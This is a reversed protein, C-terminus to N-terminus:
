GKGNVREVYKLLNEQRIHRWKWRLWVVYFPAWLRDFFIKTATPRRLGFGTTGLEIPFTPLAENALFAKMIGMLEIQYITCNCYRELALDSLRMFLGYEISCSPPDSYQGLFVKAPEDGIRVSMRVQGNELESAISELLVRM